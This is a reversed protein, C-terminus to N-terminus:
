CKRPRPSGATSPLTTPSWSLPRRSSPERGRRSCTSSSIPSRPWSWGPTNGSRTTHRRLEVGLGKLEDALARNYVSSANMTAKFLSRSDITLWKERGADVLKVKNSIVVHDHLQPDGERSEWHRFRTALLGATAHFAVGGAGTRTRIVEDELWAITATIAREHAAELLQSQTEDAVAWAVSVSKPASFTLDFGAVSQHGASLESALLKAVEQRSGSRGHRDKFLIGAQRMRVAAREDATLERGLETALQAAAHEIGRALDNDKAEYVAFPRGLRAAAIAKKPSHGRAILDAIMQDANPHLGDGFLARMQAETVPGDIGLDAAGRGMWQGEPTGTELYYDGLERSGRHQDASVTVSTYYAYGNGASLRSITM